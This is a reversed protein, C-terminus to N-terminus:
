VKKSNSRPQRVISLVFKKVAAFHYVLYYAGIAYLIGAIIDIAYHEGLYVASVWVIIPYPLFFWFIKKKYARLVLLVLMPYAAHLSPMAAVPNPNLRSYYYSLNWSWGLHDVALNTIKTISILGEESAYWPPAAPFLLFTIFGSFSLVLLAIVFKFYQHKDKIWLFFAVVLPLPFHLFYSLTAILDFFGIQGSTYFIDQLVKTPLYGFFLAKEVTVLIEIHVAFFNDAFGRLMEYALLLALFPAWDKVFTKTRGIIVAAFLLYVFFRDPTISINKALMFVVIIALYGFLLITILNQRNVMEKM